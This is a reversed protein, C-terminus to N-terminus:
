LAKMVDVLNPISPAAGASLVSISAAVTAIEVAEEITKGNSLMAVLYGCFTDGAGTTDVPEVARAPVHVAPHGSEFIMSGESGLTIVVKEIIDALHAGAEAVSKKSSIELAENRNAVLVDVLPLLAESFEAVPAPTLVVKWGALKAKEALVLNSKLGTELQLVLFGPEGSLDSNALDSSLNSGPMVVIQNEGRSSVYIHAKGTALDHSRIQTSKDLNAELFDKLYEAESDLGTCYTFSCDAGARHSAIAQNLGKGGPSVSSATGFVTDGESPLRDLTVTLDVNASGIVLVPKM